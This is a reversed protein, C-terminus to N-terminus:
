CLDMVEVYIYKQEYNRAKGGGSSLINMHKLHFHRCFFSFNYKDFLDM